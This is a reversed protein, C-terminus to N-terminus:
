GNLIQRKPEKITGSSVVKDIRSDIYRKTEDIERHLDQEHKLHERDISEIQNMITKEVVTVDRGTAEFQRWVERNTNELEQRLDSEIAACLQQLSEIKRTLFNIKVLGVVIVTLIIVAVITLMGLVFPTIEM